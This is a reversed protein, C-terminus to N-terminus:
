QGSEPIDLLGDKQDMRGLARWHEGSWPLLLSSLPSAYGGPYPSSGLLVFVFTASNKYM